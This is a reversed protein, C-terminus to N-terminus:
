EKSRKCYARQGYPTVQRVNLTKLCAALVRNGHRTELPVVILSACEESVQSM